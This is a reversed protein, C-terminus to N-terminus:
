QTSIIRVGAKDVGAKDVRSTQQQNDSYYNQFSLTQINCLDTCLLKHM